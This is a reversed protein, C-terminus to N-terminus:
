CACYINYVTGAPESFHMGLDHVWVGFGLDLLTSAQVLCSLITMCHAWLPGLAQHPAAAPRAQDKLM